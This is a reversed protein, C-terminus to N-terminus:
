WNTGIGASYVWRGDSFSEEILWQYEAQAFIFANRHVYYKLGGELAALWSDDTLDGYAYGGNVGIFPQWKDLDFHWDLFIRTSGDFLDDGDEVTAYTISQRLGVELNQSLFYGLDFGVGVTTADFDTDSGGSGVLKLEWDNAAPQAM